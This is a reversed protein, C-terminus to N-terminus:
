GYFLEEFKGVFLDRRNLPGYSIISSPPVPCFDPHLVLCHRFFAYFWSAIVDADGVGYLNRSRERLFRYKFNLVLVKGIVITRRAVSVLCSSGLVRAWSSM